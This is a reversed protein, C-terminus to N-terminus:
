VTSLPVEAELRVIMLAHTPSPSMTRASRLQWLDISCPKAIVPPMGTNKVGVRLRYPTMPGIPGSCNVAFDMAAIM